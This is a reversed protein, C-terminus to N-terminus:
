QAGGQMLTELTKLDNSLKVGFDFRVPIGPTLRRLLPNATTFTSGKPLSSEDVKLIFNRGVGWEGGLINLLHYRGFQDTTIVYGEASAIRVGPIGMEGKDQMGNANEDIYVTGFILSEDLMPDGTIEVETSARNSISSGAKFSEAYSKHTGKNVGAGVRLTYIVTLEGSEYIILDDAYFESSNIITSNITGNATSSIISGEVFLFGKPILNNLSFTTNQAINNEITVTYRVLDGIHARKSSPAFDTITLNDDFVLRRFERTIPFGGVIEGNIYATINGFGWEESMWYVVCTGNDGTVCTLTQLDGSNTTANSLNGKDIEFNIAINSAAVSGYIDRAIVTVTYYDIGDASVITNNDIEHTVYILSENASVNGTKFTVVAFKGYDNANINYNNIIFSVSVNGKNYATLNAEYKGSIGGNITVNDAGNLTVSSNTNNDFAYVTVSLNDIPNGYTDGLYVTVLSNNGVEVPSQAQIYSANPNECNQICVTGSKFNVWEFNLPNGSGDVTFTLTTNGINRSSLVASYTGNVNILTGTHDGTGGAFSSNALSTYIIVNHNVNKIPNGQADNVTVTVIVTENTTVEHASVTINSTNPNPAGTVFTRTGGLTIGQVQATINQPDNALVSRWFVSCNGNAATICSLSSNVATSNDLWSIGSPVSLTVLTNSIPNNHIDLVETTVRYYSINDAEISNDAVPTFHLRSTTNSAKAAVFTRETMTNGSILEKIYTGGASAYIQYTGAINAKFTVNASCRGEANMICSYSAPPAGHFGDTLTNNLYADRAPLNDRQITFTVNAGAMKNGSGDEIYANINYYINCLSINNEDEECVPINNPQSANYSTVEFYSTSPNVSDYSFRRSRDENSSYILSTFGQLTANVLFEGTKNSRWQVLCVGNNNTFCTGDGATFGTGNNLEGYEIHINIAQNPVLNNYNDRATVNITYYDGSSAIVMNTGPTIVLTSNLSTPIAPSFVRYQPSAKVAEGNGGLHTNAITANISFNGSTNSTWTVSCQGLSNTECNDASLVGGGITFQIIAGPAPVGGIDLATVTATYSGSGVVVPGAPTVELSSNAATANTAIFQRQATGIQGKTINAVITPNGPADSRWYVICNGNVTVCTLSLGKDTSNDLWGGTVRFTVLEGTVGHELGDKIYATATFYSSNDAIRPTLPTVTLNSTGLVAEGQIFNRFQLYGIINGNISASVSFNGIKDSTWTISCEGNALTVCTTNRYAITGNNLYGEAVNFVIQDGARANQQADRIIATLTYASVNDAIVNAGPTIVFNSNPLSVPGPIFERTQFGNYITQGGISANITFNGSTNSTWYITVNGSVPDVSYSQATYRDSLLGGTVSILVSGEAPIDGSDRLTVVATYRDTNNAVKPGSELIVLDSHSANANSSIFDRQQPSNSIATGNTFAATITFRGKENDSTWTFECYGQANTLCIVSKGFVPGNSLTGNSVTININTNPVPNPGVGDYAYARAVYSGTAADVPGAGNVELYSNLASVPANIFVATKNSGSIEPGNADGYRVTITYNGVLTSWFTNHSIAADGTTALMSDAETGVTGFGANPIAPTVSYYVFQNPIVNGFKDKLTANMNFSSGAQKPGNELVFISMTENANGATFTRTAPSNKIHNNDIRANITFIGTITSTWVVSCTGDAATICSNASLAGGNVLFTVSKGAVPNSDADRIVATATYNEEVSVSLPPPNLILESTNNSSAGSTFATTANKSNNSVGGVRFGFTVNEAVPTTFRVIYKGNGTGDQTVAPPAPTFTGNNGANGGLIIITVSENNVPSNGEDVLTVTIVSNTNVTTTPTATITTNVSTLSVRGPNFKAWDTKGFTSGSGTGEVNFDFTVNQAIATTATATYTGNGHNTVSSIVVGAAGPTVTGNEFTSNIASFTVTSGSLFNNNGDVLNLKLTVYENVQTQHPTVTFTTNVHDIHPGGSTFNTTDNNSPSAIRGDAGFGFTVTHATTTSYLVRYYGGRPDASDATYSISNNSGAPVFNGSDNALVRVTVTANTITNNFKDAIYVKITSNAGAPVNNTADIYSFRPDDIEPNSPTFRVVIIKNSVDNNARFTVTYNGAVNSTLVATYIGGGLATAPIPTIVADASNASSVFITVSQGDISNNQNDALYVTILSTNGANTVNPEAKITTYNGTVNYDTASFVATANKASSVPTGSLSFSVTVNGKLASTLNIEYYGNNNNKINGNYLVPVGGTDTSLTYLAITANTVANNFRDVVRVLATANSLVGVNPYPITITTNVHNPAPTDHFFRATASKPTVAGNVSFTLVASGSINSSIYAGYTGNNYDIATINATTPSYISGSGNSLQMAISSDIFIRVDDGGTPLVVGNTDKLTVLVLSTNGVTNNDPIVAIESNGSHITPTAITILCNTTTGFTPSINFAGNIITVQGITDCSAVFSYRDLIGHSGPAMTVAISNNHDAELIAFTAVNTNTGVSINSALLLSTNKDTISLNFNDAAFARGTINATVNIVPASGYTFVCIIDSSSKVSTSGITVNDYWKGGTQYRNFNLAVNSGDSLDTCITENSMIGLSQPKDVAISIPTNATIIRHTKGLPEDTIVNPANTSIVANTSSPATPNINTMTFTLDGSNGSTGVTKLALRIQRDVIFVQYDEVEGDLVWPNSAATTANGTATVGVSTSYRARIINSTGPGTTITGTFYINDGLNSSDSAGFVSWSSSSQPTTFVSLKGQDKRSGNIDAKFNYARNQVFGRQQIPVYRGNIDVFIGDDYSDSSANANGIYNADTTVGAGLYAFPANNMKYIPSHVVENLTSDSRDSLVTFAFDAHSVALSTTVYVRSYYNAAGALGNSSSEIGDARAGYCARNGTGEINNNTFDTCYNYVINNNGSRDTFAAGSAWTQAVHVGNIQPQKVRIYFNVNNSDNIIFSYTGNGATVTEGLFAGSSGYLQVTVGDIGGETGAIVGDGDADNYITGRIIPSVQCAALDYIDGGIAGAYVNQTVVGTLPDLSHINDDSGGFYLKGNLFASGWIAGAAGPVNTLQKVSVGTWPTPYFNGNPDKINIRLLHWTGSGSAGARAMLYANGEADIAMDSIPYYNVGATIINSHTTNMTTPNFVGIRFGGTGATGTGVGTGTYRDGNGPNEIYVEGTLQNVEGGNLGNAGVTFTGSPNALNTWAASGYNSYVVDGSSPNVDTYEWAYMRITNDTSSVPGLAITDRSGTVAPSSVALRGNPNITLEYINSGANVAYIKSCDWNWANASTSLLAAAFLSFLLKKLFCVEFFKRFLASKFM